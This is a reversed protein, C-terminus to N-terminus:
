SRPFLPNNSFRSLLYEEPPASTPTNLTKLKSNQTASFVLVKSPLLGWKLSCDEGPNIFEFSRVRCALGWTVEKRSMVVGGNWFEPVGFGM